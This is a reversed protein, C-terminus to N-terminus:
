PLLGVKKGTMSNLAQEMEWNTATIAGSNVTASLSGGPNPLGDKSKFNQRLMM